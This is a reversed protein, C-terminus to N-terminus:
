TLREGFNTALIKAVMNTKKGSQYLVVWMDDFNVVNEGFMNYCKQSLWATVEASHQDMLCPVHM